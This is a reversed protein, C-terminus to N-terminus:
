STPTFPAAIMRFRSHGSGSAACSADGDCPQRQKSALIPQTAARPRGAGAPSLLLCVRDKLRHKVQQNVEESNNPRLSSALM